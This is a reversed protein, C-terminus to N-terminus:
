VVVSIGNQFEVTITQAFMEKFESAHDVVLILRDEAYEQLMAMCSEKEVTGLGEFSEDLILWGPYCGTRRQVVKGLALDVALEVVSIMGGSCGSKYPAEVGRITVVPVIKKVVKKNQTEVESRFHLLCHATNPLKALIRNTEHSIDALVEDFIVALYGKLLAHWDKAENYSTLGSAAATEAAELAEIKQQRDRLQWEFQSRTAANARRVQVLENKLSVCLQDLGPLRGELVARETVLSAVAADVKAKEEAWKKGLLEGADQLMAVKPDPVFVCAKVLSPIEEARGVLVPEKGLEGEVEELKRVRDALGGSAEEWPRLCTPCTEARIAEIESRLRDQAARLREMSALQERVSRLEEELRWRERQVAERRDLDAREAAVRRKHCASILDALRNVETHDEGQQVRSIENTLRQISEQLAQIELEVETLRSVIESEDTYDPEVPVETAELAQRARDVADRLVQAGGELSTLKKQAAEVANEFRSLGLLGTLFEKKEGDTKNLFLGHERQARYTLAALVKPDDYGTLRRLRSTVATASSIKREAGVKLSPKPGRVLVAPGEETDLHYTIEFPTDCFWSQHTNAPFPCTEFGYSIAHLISSKGSGSSGGTELNKGKLLIMGTRPFTLSIPGVLSRFGGNVDIQRIHVRGM